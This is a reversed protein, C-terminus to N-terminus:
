EGVPRLCGCMGMLISVSCGFSSSNYYRKLIHSTLPIFWYLHYHCSVGYLSQFSFVRWYLLAWPVPFSAPLSPRPLSWVLQITLHWLWFSSSMGLVFVVSYVYRLIFIAFECMWSHGKHVWITCMCYKVHFHCDCVFNM